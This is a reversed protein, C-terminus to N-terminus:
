TVDRNGPAGRELLATFIPIFGREQFTHNLNEKERGHVCVSEISVKQSGSHLIRTKKVYLMHASAWHLFRGLPSPSAEKGYIFSESAPAPGPSAVLSLLCPFVGQPRALCAWACVRCVVCPPHSFLRVAFHQSGSNSHAHCPEFEM